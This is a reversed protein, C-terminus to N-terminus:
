KAKNPMLRSAGIQDRIVEGNGNMTAVRCLGLNAEVECGVEMGRFGDCKAAAHEMHEPAGTM